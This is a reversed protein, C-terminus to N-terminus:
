KTDREALLQKCLTAFDDPYGLLKIAALLEAGDEGLERRVLSM